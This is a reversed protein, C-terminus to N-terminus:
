SIRVQDPWLDALKGASRDDGRSGEIGYQAASSCNWSRADRSSRGISCIKGPCTGSKVLELLPEVTEMGRRIMAMDLALPLMNSAIATKDPEGDLGLYAAGQEALESILEQDDGRFVLHAALTPALLNGEVTDTGRIQDFRSKYM